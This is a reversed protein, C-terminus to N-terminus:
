STHNSAQSSRRGTATRANAGPGSHLPVGQGIRMTMRHKGVLDLGRGSFGCPVKGTRKGFLEVDFWDM